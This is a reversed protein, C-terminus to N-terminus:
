PLIIGSFTQEGQWEGDRTFRITDIKVRGNESTTTIQLKGGTEIDITFDKPETLQACQDEAANVAEQYAKRKAAYDYSETLDNRSTVVAVSTLVVLCISIFAAFLLYMGLTYVSGTKSKTKRNSTGM